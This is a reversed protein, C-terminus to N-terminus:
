RFCHRRSKVRRAHHFDLELVPEPHFRCCAPSASPKFLLRRLGRVRIRGFTLCRAPRRSTVTGHSSGAYMGRPLSTSDSSSFVPGALASCRSLARPWSVSVGKITLNVFVEPPLKVALQCVFLAGTFRSATSSFLTLFPRFKFPRRQRHARLLRLPAPLLM